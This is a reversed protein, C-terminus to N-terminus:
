NAPGSTPTSVPPNPVAVAHPAFKPILSKQLELENQSQQHYAEMQEPTLIKSLGDETAKAEAEMISLPTILAGANNKIWAQDKSNMDAQYLVAGVQDKQADSLQFMSALQSMEVSAVMESSNASEDAQMKQYETKQDPTLMDDLVQDVTKAGKLPNSDVKGDTLTAETMEETKEDFADMAAKVASEQEPTLHLRTKLALLKAASQSKTQAKNFDSFSSRAPRALVTSAAAKLQSVQKKLDEKTTTLQQIQASMADTENKVKQSDQMARALNANAANMQEQLDALQKGEGWYHNFALTGLIGALCAVIILIPNRM